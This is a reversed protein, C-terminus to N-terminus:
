MEAKQIQTTLRIGRCWCQKFSTEPSFRFHFGPLASKANTVDWGLAEFIPNIFQVRAETENYRSSKAIRIQARFPKGPKTKLARM